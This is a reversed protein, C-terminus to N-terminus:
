GKANGTGKSALYKSYLDQVEKLQGAAPKDRPSFDRVRQSFEQEGIPSFEEAGLDYTSLLTADPELSGKEKGPRRAGYRNGDKSVLFCVPTHNAFVYYEYRSLRGEPDHEPKPLKSMVDENTDTM